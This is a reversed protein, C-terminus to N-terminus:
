RASLQQPKPSSDKVLEYTTIGAAVGAAPGGILLAVPCGKSLKYTRDGGDLHVILHEGNETIDAAIGPDLRIRAHCGFKVITFAKGAVIHDTAFLPWDPVGNVAVQSGRLSFPESSTVTAVKEAGSVAAALLVSFAVSILRRSFMSGM